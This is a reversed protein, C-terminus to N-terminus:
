IKGREVVWELGEDRDSMAKTDAGRETRLAAPVDSDCRRGGSSWVPPGHRTCKRRLGEHGPKSARPVAVRPEAHGAPRGERGHHPRTTAPTRRRPHRRPGRFAAATLDRRRGASRP